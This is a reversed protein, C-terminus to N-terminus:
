EPVDDFTIDPSLEAAISEVQWPELEPSLSAFEPAGGAVDSELELPSEELGEVPSHKGKDKGM